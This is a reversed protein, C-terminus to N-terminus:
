NDRVAITLLDRITSLITLACFYLDIVDLRGFDIMSLTM